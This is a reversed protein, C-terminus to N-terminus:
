VLAERRLGVACRLASLADAATIFGDGDFDARYAQEETPSALGAAARLAFLADSVTVAGDGDPDGLRVPENGYWYVELEAVQMRKRNQSYPNSRFKTGEFRVYKAEVGEFDIVIFDTPRECGEETRVAEWNVADDSVSVTYSEPIGFGADDGSVRPYIVLQNIARREGLNVYVWESKGGSVNRSSWGENEGARTDRVGDNVFRQRLAADNAYATSVMTYRELAYNESLPLSTPAFHAAVSKDADMTLALVSERSGVTGDFSDFCYGRAPVAEVTVATGAAFAEEYPLAVAAGNVKVRGNEAAGIRLTFSGAAPASSAFSGVHWEGAEVNFYIHSYDSYAYSVGQVGANIEGNNWLPVNGCIVVTNEGARPVALVAASGEPVSVDMMFRGNNKEAEVTILGKPSPVGCSVSTIQEGLQPKVIFKDYGAELPRVGAAYGSLSVLGGGAWGHNASGDTWREPLTPNSSTVANYYSEKMRQEGAEPYGMLYLAEICYKVMYPSAFRNNLLIDRLLPYKDPSALGAYVALAQARDDAPGAYTSSRYESGNWFLRDFKSAMVDRVNAYYAATEADGLAEAFDVVTKVGIYAWVNLCLDKDINNGWDVWSLHMTNTGNRRAFPVTFSTKDLKFLQIYKLLAPYAQELTVRDGSYLYYRFWSMVGALSQGPLEAWENYRLTAPATSSIVGEENQWNIRVSVDKRIADYVRGDLSYYAIEMENVMDGLWPARESDPCDMFTDRINVYVTDRAKTWLTNYFEDNCEFYGTFESNYGSRRYGLEIVEVGSPISFDAYWWNIWAPSEYEQEVAEGNEGGKTVYTVSYNGANPSKIKITKGAEARVKLYACYHINTEFLVRYGGSIAQVHETDTVPYSERDWVKWEPIPRLWLENWPKDGAEGLEAADEWGSVDFEPKYFDDFGARADYIIHFEQAHVNVRNSPQYGTHRSVKWSSDSVILEDGMQSEFLFAGQGSGVHSHGENGYYWVLAVISNVGERLYPTLVVEDYYSAVETIMEDLDPQGDSGQPYIDKKLLAAGRKLGGEFVALEGNIWLWYKTDAAIKATIEGELDSATLTVDKRFAMWRNLSGDDSPSWIWKASFDYDSKAFAAEGTAYIAAANNRSFGPAEADGSASVGAPAFALLMVAALAAACIRKFFPRKKM